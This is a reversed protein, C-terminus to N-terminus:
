MSAVRVARHSHPQNEKAEIMKKFSALPNITATQVKEWQPNINQVAQLFKDPSDFLSGILKGAKEDLARKGNHVYSYQFNSMVQKKAMELKNEPAQAEKLKAYVLLSTTLQPFLAFAKGGVKYGHYFVAAKENEDLAAIVQEAREKAKVKDPITKRIEKTLGPLIVDEMMNSQMVYSVQIAQAPSLSFSSYEGLRVGAKNMGKAKLEDPIEGSGLLSLKNLQGDPAVTELLQHNYDKTQGKPNYGFGIVNGAFNYVKESYGEAFSVMALFYDGQEMFMKSMSIAVHREKQKPSLGDTGPVEIDALQVLKEPDVNAAVNNNGRLAQIKQIASLKLQQAQQSVEDVMSNQAVQGLWQAAPREIQNQISLSLVTAFGLLVFKKLDKVM